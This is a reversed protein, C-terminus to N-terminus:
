QRNTELVSHIMLAKFPLTERGLKQRPEAYRRDENVTSRILPVLVGVQWIGKPHYPCDRSVPIV